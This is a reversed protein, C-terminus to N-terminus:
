NGIFEVSTEVAQTQIVSSSTLIFGGANIYHSFGWRETGKFNFRWSDKKVFKANEKELISLRFSPFYGCQEKGNSLCKVDSNGCRCTDRKKKCMQRQMTVLLLAFLQLYSFHLSLIVCLVAHKHALFVLISNCMALSSYESNKCFVHM